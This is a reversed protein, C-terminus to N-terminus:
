VPGRHFNSLPIGFIESISSFLHPNKDDYFSNKEGKQKDHTTISSPKNFKLRTVCDIRLPHWTDRKGLQLPSHTHYNHCRHLWSSGPASMLSSDNTVHSWLVLSVPRWQGPVNQLVQIMVMFCLQCQLCVVVIFWGNIAGNRRKINTPKTVNNEELNCDRYKYTDWMM